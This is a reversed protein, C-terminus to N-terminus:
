YWKVYMKCAFSDMPSM